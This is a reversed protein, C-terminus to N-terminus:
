CIPWPTGRRRGIEEVSRPLFHLRYLNYASTGCTGAGALDESDQFTKRKQLALSVCRGALSRTDGYNGIAAARDFGEQGHYPLVQMYWISVIRKM